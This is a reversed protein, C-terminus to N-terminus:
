YTHFTLPFTVRCETEGTNFDTIEYYQSVIVNSNNIVVSSSGVGTKYVQVVLTIGGTTITDTTYGNSDLDDHYSRINIISNLVPGPGMNLWSSYTYIGNSWGYGLFKDENSTSGNYMRVISNGVSAYVASYEYPDNNDDAEVSSSSTNCIRQVPTHPLDDGTINAEFNYDDDDLTAKVSASKLNWYISMAQSLTLPEVIDYTSVDVKSLCEAFGNGKGLATFQTATPM